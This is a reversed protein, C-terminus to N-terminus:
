CSPIMAGYVTTLYCLLHFRPLLTLPSQAGPTGVASQPSCAPLHFAFQPGRLLFGMHARAQWTWWGSGQFHARPTLPPLAEEHGYFLTLNLHHAPWTSALVTTFASGELATEVSFSLAGTALHRQGQPQHKHLKHAGWGPSPRLTPPEDLPHQLHWCHGGGAPM